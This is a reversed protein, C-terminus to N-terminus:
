QDIEVRNPRGLQQAAKKQENELEVTQVNKDLLLLRPHLDVLREPVQLVVRRVHVHPALGKQDKPGDDVRPDDQQGADRGERNQTRAEARPIHEEIGQAEEEEVVEVVDLAVEAEHARIVPVAQPKSPDVLLHHRRVVGIAVHLAFLLQRVICVVDAPCAPHDEHQVVDDRHQQQNARQDHRGHRENGREECDNGLAEISAVGSSGAGSRASCQRVRATNVVPTSTCMTVFRTVFEAGGACRM